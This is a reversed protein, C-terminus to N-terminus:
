AKSYITVQPFGSWILLTYLASYMQICTYLQCARLCARLVRLVCAVGVGVRCACLCLCLRLRVLLVAVALAVACGSSCCLWCSSCRFCVIIRGANNNPMISYEVLCFLCSRVFSRVFSFLEENKWRNCRCPFPLRAGPKVSPFVCGRNVTVALTKERLGRKAAGKLGGM